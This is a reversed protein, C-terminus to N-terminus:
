GGASCLLSDKKNPLSRPTHRSWCELCDRGCVPSVWFPSTMLPLIRKVLYDCGSVPLFGRLHQSLCSLLTPIVTIRSDSLHKVGVTVNPPVKLYSPAENSPFSFTSGWILRQSQSKFPTKSTHHQGTEFTMNFIGSLANHCLQWLTTAVEGVSGPFLHLVWAWQHNMNMALKDPNHIGPFWDRPILNELINLPCLFVWGLHPHSWKM